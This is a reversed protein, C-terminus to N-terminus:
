RYTHAHHPGKLVGLVTRAVARFGISGLGRYLANAVRDQKNLHRASLGACGTCELMEVLPTLARRVDHESNANVTDSLFASLPDFALLLAGDAVVTRELLEVDEPISLLRPMGDSGVVYSVLRVRSCDAGAAVLRPTVTAEWSDEAGVLIVGGLPCPSGDPWAKGTTVHAAMMALHQSKGREPDGDFGSFVGRGLRNLWVWEIARMDIQSAKRGVATM